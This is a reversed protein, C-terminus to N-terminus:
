QYAALVLDKLNDHRDWQHVVAPVEGAQNVIYEGETQVSGRPLYGVTYVPSRENRWCTAVAEGGQILYNHAAQDQFETTKGQIKEIERCLRDLYEAVVGAAGCFSGVCLISMGQIRRLMDEGYGVRIWKSNYPCSGITMTDAEAFVNLYLSPLSEPNLQFITDRVDLCLVGQCDPMADKIWFFRNSHPQPFPCGGPEAAEWGWREVEQATDERDVFLLCRGTYNAQFLSKVFPRVQEPSYKVAAGIICDIM